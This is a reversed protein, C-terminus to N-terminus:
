GAPDRSWHRILEDLWPRVAPAVDRARALAHFPSGIRELHDLDDLALVLRLVPGNEADQAPSAYERFGYREFMRAVAEQDDTAGVRRRDPDM